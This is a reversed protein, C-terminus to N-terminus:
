NMPSSDTGCSDRIPLERQATDNCYNIMMTMITDCHGNNRCTVKGHISADCDINYSALPTCFDYVTFVWLLLLKVIRTRCYCCWLPHEGKSVQPEVKTVSIQKQQETVLKMM